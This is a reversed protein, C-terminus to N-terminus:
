RPTAPTPRSRSGCTGCRADDLQRDRHYARAVLPHLQHAEPYTALLDLYIQRAEAFRDANMLAAARVLGDAIKQNPDITPEVRQLTMRIPRPRVGESLALSIQRTTYGDKVFDIQWLGGALGGIAWEGEDDSTVERGGDADPLYAKVVVGDIPAGDADMVTGDMPGRGRWLQAAAESAFLAGLLVLTWTALTKRM